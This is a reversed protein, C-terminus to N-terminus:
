HGTTFIFGKEAKSRMYAGAFELVQATTVSSNQAYRKCQVVAWLDGPGTRVEVDVGFDGPRGVTATRYGQATFLGAVFEEFRAPELARLSELSLRRVERRQAAEWLRDVSTLQIPRSRDKRKVARVRDEEVWRREEAVRILKVITEQKHGRAGNNSIFRTLKDYPVTRAWLLLKAPDPIPLM